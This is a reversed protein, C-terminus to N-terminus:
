KGICFQSFISDLLDDTATKGVIEGVAAVAIRLELAALELSLDGDLAEGARETAVRARRLADQHRANIMVELMEARIEGSWVIEKISDKLQEIGDGTLCSVKVVPASISKPLTLRPELDIKNCVLVSKKQVLQEDTKRDEATFPESADLVHLVLEARALSHHSRRIGEEEISNRAERLGATDVLVIPIGRVNATEEITDRTTGAIPTVIAREHGLLQNLLSSKGVNPRGVIAARIGRRLIQGESATILLDDMMVLAHQIRRGLEGRTDPAIDEDPFDIHAEVHALISM